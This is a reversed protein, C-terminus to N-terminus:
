IMYAFRRVNLRISKYAFRGVFYAIMEATWKSVQLLIFDDQESNSVIRFRLVVGVSTKGFKHRKAPSNGCIAPSNSAALPTSLDLGCASLWM